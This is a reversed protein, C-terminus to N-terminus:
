SKLRSIIKLLNEMCISSAYEGMESFSDGSPLTLISEQIKKPRWHTELSVYGAYNNELLAKLQGEINVEGEGIPVLESEHDKRVGDKLHVHVIKNKVFNYGFPFPKEMEPDMMDNGPDWVALVSKSGLADLFTALTRGNTVFTSPENEIGLILDSEEIVDLPERFKGLIETLRDDLKGKRWFTFGRIIGCDLAKAMDISKQLINMHLAYEEANGLEAKFFPSAIASVELDHERLIGKIETIRDALELFKLNWASRIELADLGYKKAFKAALRLDQSVEDSIVSVKFM